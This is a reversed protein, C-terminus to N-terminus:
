NNQEIEVRRNNARGDSTKNTDIPAREGKSAIKMQHVSIGQSSLFKEVAQARRMGLGLNFGDSGISDTHGVIVIEVKTENGLNAALKTLVALENAKLDAKGFEFHLTVPLNKEPEVYQPAPDPRRIPSANLVPRAIETKKPMEASVYVFIKQRSKTLAHQLVNSDEFVAIRDNRPFTEFSIEKQNVKTAADLEAESPGLNGNGKQFMSCASLTVALAFVIPTHRM